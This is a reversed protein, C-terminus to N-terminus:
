RSEEGPRPSDDWVFASGYFQDSDFVTTGGEDRAEDLEGIAFSLEGTAPDFVAMVQDTWTGELREVMYGTYTGPLDEVARFGLEMPFDGNRDTDCAGGSGQSLARDRKWQVTFAFTCDPCTSNVVPDVAPDVDWYLECDYDRPATSAQAWRYLLSGEFVIYDIPPEGTDEPLSTDQATDQATDTTAVATDGTKEVPESCSLAVLALCCSVLRDM